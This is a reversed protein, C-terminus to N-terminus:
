LKKPIAKRMEEINSFFKNQDFPKEDDVNSQKLRANERITTDTGSLSDRVGDVFRKTQVPDNWLALYPLDRRLARVIREAADDGVPAAEQRTYDVHDSM